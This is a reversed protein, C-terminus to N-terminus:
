RSSERSSKRRYWRTWGCLDERFRLYVNTALMITKGLDELHLRATEVGTETFVARFEPFCKYAEQGDWKAVSTMYHNVFVLIQQIGNAQLIRALEAIRAPAPRSKVDSHIIVACPGHIRQQQGDERFGAVLFFCKSM